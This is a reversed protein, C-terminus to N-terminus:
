ASLTNNDDCMSRIVYFRKISMLTYVGVKNQMDDPDLELWNNITKCWLEDRSAEIKTREILVSYTWLDREM